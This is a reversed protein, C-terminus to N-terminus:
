KYRDKYPNTQSNTQIQARMSRDDKLLYASLFIFTAINLLAKGADNKM